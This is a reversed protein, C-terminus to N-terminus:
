GHGITGLAFADTHPSLLTLMLEGGLSRVQLPGTGACAPELNYTFVGNTTSTLSLSAACPISSFELSGAAEDSAIELSVPFVGDLNPHETSTREVQGTWRGSIPEGDTAPTLGRAFASPVGNQHLGELIRAEAARSRLPGGLLVQFGAYLQEARDSPVVEVLIGHEALRRREAEANAAIQFSGAQIYRGAEIQGGAETVAAEGAAAAKEAAAAERAAAASKAAPASGRLVTTTSSGGGAGLLIALGVGAGTVLIAIGVAIAVRNRRETAGAGAAPAPPLQESTRPGPAAPQPARAAQRAGCMRCFSAGKAVVEGCNSCRRKM